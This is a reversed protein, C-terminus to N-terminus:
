SYTRNSRWYRRLTAGTGKQNSFFTIETHKGKLKITAELDIDRTEIEYSIEPRFNYNTFEIDQEYGTKKYNDEKINISVFSIGTCKNTKQM